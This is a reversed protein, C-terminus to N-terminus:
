RIEETPLFLTPAPRRAPPGAPVPVPLPRGPPPGVVTVVPPSGAGTLVRVALYLMAGPLLVGGLLGTMTVTDDVWPLLGVLGSLWFGFVSLGELVIVAVPGWRRGAAAAAAATVLLAARGLPAALYLPNAGTFLLQGAAALLGMGAQLLALVFLLHRYGGM